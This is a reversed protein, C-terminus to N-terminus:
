KAGYNLSVGWNGWPVGHFSVGGCEVEIRRDVTRSRNRSKFYIVCTKQAPITNGVVTSLVLLLLVKFPIRQM